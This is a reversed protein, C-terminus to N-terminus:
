LQDHYWDLLESKKKGANLRNIGNRIEGMTFVSIYVENLTISEMYRRVNPDCPIKRIESSVNTDILCGM